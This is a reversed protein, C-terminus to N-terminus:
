QSISIGSFIVECTIDASNCLSLRGAEELQERAIWKIFPKRHITQLVRWVATLLKDARGSKGSIGKRVPLAARYPPLPLTAVPMTPLSVPHPVLFFFTGPVLLSRSPCRNRSPPQKLWSLAAGSHPFPRHLRGRLGKGKGVSTNLGLWRWLTLSWM